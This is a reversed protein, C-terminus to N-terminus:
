QWGRYGKQCLWYAADTTWGAGSNNLQKMIDNGNCGANQPSASQDADSHILGAKWWPNFLNPPEAFHGGGRHYYTIGTALATQLSIDCQGGCASTAPNLFIGNNGNAGYNEKMNLDTQRGGWNLHFAMDWPDLTGPRAAYNRQVTVPAKPQGWNDQWGGGIGGWSPLLKRDDFDVFNSWASPCNLLCMSPVTHIGSDSWEWPIAPFYFVLTELPFGWIDGFMVGMHVSFSDNGEVGAVSFGPWPIGSCGIGGYTVIHILHDDSVAWTSASLILNDGHVPGMSFYSAGDSFVQVQDGSTVTQYFQSLVSGSGSFSFGDINLRGATWPHTRSGMAAAVAHRDSLIANTINIAGTFPIPLGWQFGVEEETIKDANGGPTTIDPQGGASANVANRAQSQGNLRQVGLQLTVVSQMGWQFLAVSAAANAQQAAAADLGMFMGYIANGRMWIPWIRGFLVGFIGFCGCWVWPPDCQPVQNAVLELIYDWFLSDMIGFVLTTFSISADVGIQTVNDAIIARNMIALENFARATAVSTSYAAQDAMMQLEMKEKAKQGFSLTMCVLLTM